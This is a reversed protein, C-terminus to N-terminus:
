VFRRQRKLCSPRDAGDPHLAQLECDIKAPQLAQLECDMQEKTFKGISEMVTTSAVPQETSKGIQETLEMRLKEISEMYDGLDFPTDFPVQSDTWEESVDTPVEELGFPVQSDACQDMIDTAAEEMAWGEKTLKKVIPNVVGELEKLKSEFECEPHDEDSSIHISLFEWTTRVAYDVNEWDRGRFFDSRLLEEISFCYSELRCRGDQLGQLEGDIQGKTLKEMSAVHNEAPSAVLSAQLEGDIQGMTLKKISAM